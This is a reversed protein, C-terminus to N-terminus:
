GARTANGGNPTWMQCALAVGQVSDQVRWKRNKCPHFRLKTKIHSYDRMRTIQAGHSKGPQKMKFPALYEPYAQGRECM